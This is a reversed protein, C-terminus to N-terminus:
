RSWSAQSVVGDAQGSASSRRCACGARRPSARGSVSPRRPRRGAPASGSTRTRCPRPQLPQQRVAESDLRREDAPSRDPQGRPRQRLLVPHLTNTTSAADKLFQLLRGVHHDLNEVMAAYIEMRARRSAAERGPSARELGARFAHTAADATARPVVAHRRASEFRRARLVDYGGDYVGRYRDLEADPVQLPWHPSTYAAYAFFPRGDALGGRIM